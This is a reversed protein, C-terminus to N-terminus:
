SIVRIKEKRLRSPKLVLRKLLPPLIVFRTLLESAAGKNFTIIYSASPYM